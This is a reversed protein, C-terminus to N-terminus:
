AAVESSSISAEIFQGIHVRSGVRASEFVPPLVDVILTDGLFEGDEDVPQLSLQYQRESPGGFCSEEKSKVLFITASIPLEPTTQPATALSM